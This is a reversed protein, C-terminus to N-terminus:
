HKSNEHRSRKKKKPLTFVTLCGNELETDFGLMIYESRLTTLVEQSQHYIKKNKPKM